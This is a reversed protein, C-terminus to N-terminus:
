SYWEFTYPINKVVKEEQTKTVSEPFDRRQKLSQTTIHM